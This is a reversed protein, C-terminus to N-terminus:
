RLILRQNLEKTLAAPNDLTIALTLVNGRDTCSAAAATCRFKAQLYFNPESLIAFATVVSKRDVRQQPKMGISVIEDFRVVYSGFLGTPIRVADALIELRNFKLSFFGCVLYILFSLSLFTHGLRVVMHAKTLALHVAFFEIAGLAFFVLVLQMENRRSFAIGDASLDAKDRISMM